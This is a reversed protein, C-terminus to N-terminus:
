LLTEALVKTIGQRYELYPKDKKKYFQLKAMFWTYFAYFHM